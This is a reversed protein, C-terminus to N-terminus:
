VPALGIKSKPLWYNLLTAQLAVTPFPSLYQQLTAVATTTISTVCVEQTM